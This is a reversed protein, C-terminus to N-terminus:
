KQIMLNYRAQLAEKLLTPNVGDRVYRRATSATMYPTALYRPKVGLKKLVERVEKKTYSARTSYYQLKQLISERPEARQILYQPLDRRLDQIFLYGGPKIIRLMERLVNLPNGLEHFSDKSIVLDVSRAKLPINMANGRIFKVNRLNICNKKGLKLAHPSRDFGIVTFSKSRKAIERVLFGPGSGIDVIVANRRLDTQALVRDVLPIFWRKYNKRAMKEFVDLEVAAM